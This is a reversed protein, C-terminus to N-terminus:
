NKNLNVKRHSKLKSFLTIPAEPCIPSFIYCNMDFMSALCFEDTHAIYSFFGTGCIANFYQGTEEEAALQIARKSADADNAVINKQIITRLRLSNCKDESVLQDNICTLEGTCAQEEDVGTSEDESYGEYPDDPVGKSYSTDLTQQKFSQSAPMNNPDVYNSGTHHRQQALYGTISSEQPYPLPISPPLVPASATVTVQYISLNFPRQDVPPPQTSHSAPVYVVNRGNSIRYAKRKESTPSMSSYDSLIQTSRDELANAHYNSAETGFLRIMKGTPDRGFTQVNKASNQWNPIKRSLLVQRNKDVVIPTIDKFDMVESKPAADTKYAFSNDIRNISQKSRSSKFAKYLRQRWDRISNLISDSVIPGESRTKSTESTSFVATSSELVSQNPILTPFQNPNKGLQALPLVNDFKKVPSTGILNIAPHSENPEESIKSAGFMELTERTEPFFNNLNTLLKNKLYVKNGFPSPLESPPEDHFRKIRRPFELHARQDSLTSSLHLFLLLYPIM